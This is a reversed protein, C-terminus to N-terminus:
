NLYSDMKELGNIATDFNENEIFKDFKENDALLFWQNNEFIHQIFGHDILYSLREIIECESVSYRKALISKEIKGGELEAIISSTLPDFMCDVIKDRNICDM